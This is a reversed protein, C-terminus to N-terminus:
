RTGRAIAAKADAVVYEVHETKPPSCGDKVDKYVQIIDLLGEVVRRADGEIEADCRDHARQWTEITAMSPNLYGREDKLCLGDVAERLTRLTEAERVRGAGSAYEAARYLGQTLRQRINVVIDSM